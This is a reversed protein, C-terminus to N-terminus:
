KKVWRGNKFKPCCDEACDGSDSDENLCHTGVGCYPCDCPDKEQCKKVNPRKWWKTKKM